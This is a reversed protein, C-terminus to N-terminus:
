ILVGGETQNERLIKLRKPVELRILEELVSSRSARPDDRAVLEIYNDLLSIAELTLYVYTAIKRKRDMRRKMKLLISKEL